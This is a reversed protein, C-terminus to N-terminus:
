FDNKPETSEGEMVEEYLSEIKLAKRTTKIGWLSPGRFVSRLTGVESEKLVRLSGTFDSYGKSVKGLQLYYDACKILRGRVGESIVPPVTILTLIHSSRTLCRIAKLFEGFEPDQYLFAPISSLLM